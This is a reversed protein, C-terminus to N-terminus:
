QFQRYRCRQQKHRRDTSVSGHREEGLKKIAFLSITSHFLIYPVWGDATARMVFALQIM